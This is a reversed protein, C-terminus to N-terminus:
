KPSYRLGIFFNFRPTEYDQVLVYERNFLNNIRALVTWDREIRYKAFISVLEYPSLQQTNAADNYRLGSALVDAGVSLRGFEHAVALRGIERARYRLINQTRTDQPNQLDLSSAIRWNAVETAYSLTWGKLEASAVNSPIWTSSGAAIPAWEILNKVNNSYYTLSASTGQNEYKLAIERNSSTEPKLDPNGAGPWYMDNFSPAKFGTSASGNM